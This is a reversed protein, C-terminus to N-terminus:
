FPLDDVADEASVNTPPVTVNGKVTMTPAANPVSPITATTPMSTAKPMSPVAPASTGNPVATYNGTTPMQMGNSQQQDNQRGGVFDISDAVIDRDIGWGCTKSQYLGDRFTGTVIVNSGKKIHAALSLHNQNFCTIRFWKTIPKGDAGKEDNYENNAISFTVYERNQKSIQKMADRAVFGSVIIKRM